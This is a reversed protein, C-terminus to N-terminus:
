STKRRSSVKRKLIVPTTQERGDALVSLMVTITLSSSNKTKMDQQKSFFQNQNKTGSTAITLMYFYSLEDESSIQGSLDDHKLHLNIVHCQHATLKEFYDTPIVPALTTRSHLPLEKHHM